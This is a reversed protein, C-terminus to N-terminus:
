KRGQLSDMVDAITGEVVVEHNETFVIAVNGAGADRVCRVVEPNIAVMGGSKFKFVCLELPVSADGIQKASLMAPLQPYRSAADLPEFKL